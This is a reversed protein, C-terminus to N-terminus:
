QNRDSNENRTLASSILGTPVAVLAIGMFLLISAFVRGGPTVPHMDGYGVTSFSEVAWWLGDFVSSFKEPQADKEFFYIGVGALYLMILMFGGFMSLETKISKMAGFFHEAARNYRTMKLLRFLRLFRLVRITKLDVGSILLSPLISLLDVIGFFSFVYSKTPTTLFIRTVYEVAFFVLCFGEIIELYRETRPHLGPLTGLSFVLVSLFILSQSIFEIVGLNVRGNEDKTYWSM